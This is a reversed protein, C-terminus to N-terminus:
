YSHGLVDLCIFLKLPLELNVLCAELPVYLFGNSVSKVYNSANPRQVRRPVHKFFRYFSLSLTANPKDHCNISVKLQLLSHLSCLFSVHM